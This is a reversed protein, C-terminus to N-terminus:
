LLWQCICGGWLSWRSCACCNSQLSVLSLWPVVYYETSTHVHWVIFAAVMIFSSSQSVKDLGDHDYVSIDVGPEYAAVDPLMIQGVDLTEFWQPSRSKEVVM